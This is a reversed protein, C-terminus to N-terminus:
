KPVEVPQTSATVNTAKWGFDDLLITSDLLGDASDWITFMVDMTSGPTVPAVTELWSTAASNDVATGAANCDFGTGELQSTGLPCTFVKAGATGPHCVQLFSANVSVLNGKSDFSINGDAIGPPPPTLIAVFFDDFQSCIYEPYEYTYFDLKFSLSAVNTPVRIQVDLAASDHPAGTIANPCSPSERPFGAPAGTTYMKDFGSVPEYGPDDPRRATGSSLALVRSGEQPRVNPGFGPLLGHGLGQLDFRELPQGDATLYRASIVGWSRGTQMKCLGMARAGDLPNASALELPGDCDTPTDDPVGSCDEDIGNGPFDYAGPNINPDCDNCDGQAISFGDHDADANPDTVNCRAAGGDTGLSVSIELGSSGGSGKTHTAGLGGAASSRETHHGEVMGCAAVALLLAASWMAVRSQMQPYRDRERRRDFGLADRLQGRM